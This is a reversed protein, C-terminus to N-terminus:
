PLPTCTPSTMDDLLRISLHLARCDDAIDTDVFACTKDHVLNVSHRGTVSASDACQVYEDLLCSHPDNLAVDQIASLRLYWHNQDAIVPSQLLHLRQHARGEGHCEPPM